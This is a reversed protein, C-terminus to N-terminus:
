WTAAIHLTGSKGQDSSDTGRLTLELKTNSASDTCPSYSTISGDATIDKTKNYTKMTSGTVRVKLTFKSGDSLDNIKCDCKLDKGATYSKDSYYWYGNPEDPDGTSLAFPLGKGSSGGFFLGKEVLIDLLKERLAEREERNEESM